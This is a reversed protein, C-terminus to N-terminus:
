KLLLMKRTLVKSGEFEVRYFYVGSAFGEANWTVSYSGPSKMENVLTDVKRGLIDYIVLNVMGPQDLQYSITTTPNFPNPYNQLLTYEVPTSDEVFPIIDGGPDYVYVEAFRNPSRTLGGM